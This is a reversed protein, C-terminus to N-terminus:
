LLLQCWAPQPRGFLLCSSSQWARSEGGIIVAVSMSANGASSPQLLQVPAALAQLLQLGHQQLLEPPLCCSSSSSSSNRALLVGSLQLQLVANTKLLLDEAEHQLRRGEATSSLSSPAELQQQRVTRATLLQLELVLKVAADSLVPAAVGLQRQDANSLGVAIATACTNTREICAEIDDDARESVLAAKDLYAQGGPLLPLM